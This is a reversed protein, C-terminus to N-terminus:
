RMERLIRWRRQSLQSQRGLGLCLGTNSYGDFAVAAILILGTAVPQWFPSVGFLNLGNAVVGLLFVGVITGAMRGRGGGLSAGGVIVAAIATLEYGLAAQPTASATQGILIIGSVAACGSVIVYVAFRVRAANVGMEASAFRIAGSPTSTTASAPGLLVFGLLLAVILFLIAPNPIGLLYGLGLNTFPYPGRFASFSTAVYILGRVVTMTGLTAVFPNVGLYAILWGNAAGVLLCSAVAGVIGIPIGLTGLDIILTAGVVSALATVSGVSLDFGGLIIAFTMGCAIIGIVSNQQLVNVLNQYTGFTSKSVFMAAVLLIFVLLVGHRRALAALWSWRRAKVTMLREAGADARRNDHRRNRGAANERDRSLRHGARAAAGLHRRHHPLDSGPQPQDGPHHTGLQKLGFIVEEVAKTEAIGLAATPEDMLILKSGWAGARAIAVVQRQGGSLGEVSEGVPPVNRIFRKLMEATNSLMASKDLIHLSRPGATLERGLYVNAWVPLNGVLALDQYVTEIGRARADAPSAFNATKGELRSGAPTPRRASRQHDQRPTSKGAGNDGVLGTIEGRPIQLAVDQLAVVAGFSKNIAEARLLADSAAPSDNM